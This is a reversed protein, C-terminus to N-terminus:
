LDGSLVLMYYMERFASDHTRHCLATYPIIPPIRYSRGGTKQSNEAEDM